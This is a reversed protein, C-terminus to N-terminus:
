TSRNCWRTGSAYCTVSCWQLVLM